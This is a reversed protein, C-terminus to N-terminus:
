AAHSGLPEDDSVIDALLPQLSCMEVAAALGGASSARYM